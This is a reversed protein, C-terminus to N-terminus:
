PTEPTPTPTTTRPTMPALLPRGDDGMAVAAGDDDVLFAGRWFGVVGRARVVGDDLRPGTPGGLYLRYRRGVQLQPAGPVVQTLDGVVGGPVAVLTSTPRGSPNSVVTYFSIIRRGVFRADVDVVVGEVVVDAARELDATTMPPVTTATAAAASTLALSLLFSRLVRATYRVPEFVSV